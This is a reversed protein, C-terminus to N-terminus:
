IPPPPTSARELNIIVGDAMMDNVVMGDVVTGGGHKSASCGGDLESGRDVVRTNTPPYPHNPRRHARTYWGLLFCGALLLVVLCTIAVALSAALPARDCAEAATDQSAVMLSTPESTTANTQAATSLLQPEIAPPATTVKASAVLHHDTDTATM